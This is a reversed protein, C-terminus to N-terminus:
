PKVKALALLLKELEPVSSRHVVVHRGEQELIILGSADLHIAIAAEQCGLDDDFEQWLVHPQRFLKTLTM